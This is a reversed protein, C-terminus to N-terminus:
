FFMNSFNCIYSLRGQSGVGLDGAYSQQELDTILVITSSNENSDFIKAEGNFIESHMNACTSEKIMWAITGLNSDQCSM